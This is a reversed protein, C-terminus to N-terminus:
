AGVMARSIAHADPQYRGSRDEKQLHSVKQASQSALSQMTQSIRGALGSLEVHDSGASGGAAAAKASDVEIRQTQAARGASTSASQNLSQEDIRM